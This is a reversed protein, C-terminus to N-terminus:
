EELHWSQTHVLRLFLLVSSLTMEQVWTSQSLEQLGTLRGGAGGSAVPWGAAM